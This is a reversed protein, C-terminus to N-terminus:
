GGLGRLGDDEVAAGGVEGGGGGLGAEAGGVGPFVEEVDEGLMPGGGAEGADHVAEGAGGVVGRARDGEVEVDGEGAVEGVGGGVLEAGGGGVGAEGEVAEEDFGVGGEEGGDGVAALWVLGGEDDM